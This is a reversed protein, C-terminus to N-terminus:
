SNQHNRGAKCDWWSLGWDFPQEAKLHDRPRTWDAVSDRHLSDLLHESHAIDSCLHNFPLFLTTSFPACAGPLVMVKVSSHFWFGIWSQPPYESPLLMSDSSLFGGWVSVDLVLAVVSHGEHWALRSGPPFTFIWLMPAEVSNGCGNITQPAM